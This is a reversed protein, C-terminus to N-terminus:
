WWVLIQHFKCITVEELSLKRRGEKIGFRVETDERLMRPQLVIIKLEERLILFWKKVGTFFLCSVTSYIKLNM